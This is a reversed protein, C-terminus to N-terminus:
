DSTTSHRREGAMDPATASLLVAIAIFVMPWRWNAQFSDAVILGAAASVGTYDEVRFLAYIVSGVMLVAAAFGLGGADALIEAAAFQPSVRPDYQSFTERMAVEGYQGPGVGLVPHELFTHWVRVTHARREGVSQGIAPGSDRSELYKRYMGGSFVTVLAALALAHWWKPQRRTYLDFGIYLLGWLVAGILVQSSLSGALGIWLIADMWRGPMALPRRPDVARRASSLTILAGLVYLGFPPAEVFTGGLRPWVIKGAYFAQRFWYAEQYTRWVAPMPLDLALGILLYAAVVVEVVAVWGLVVAARRLASKDRWARICGICLLIGLLTRVPERFAEAGPFQATAVAAIAALWYTGLFLAACAAVSRLRRDHFELSWPPLLAAFAGVVLTPDIWTFPLDYVLKIMYSLPSLVLAIIVLWERLDAWFTPGRLWGDIRSSSSSTM